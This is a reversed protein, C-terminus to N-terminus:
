GRPGSVARAVKAALDPLDAEDLREAPIEVLPPAMRARHKGYRPDYHREMLSDALAAFSGAAALAQWAAVTEKPHM